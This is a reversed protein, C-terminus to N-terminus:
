FDDDGDSPLPSLPPPTPWDSGENPPPIYGYGDDDEEEAEVNMEAENTVTTSPGGRNQSNHNIRRSKSPRVGTRAMRGKDDDETGGLIWNKTAPTELAVTTFALKEIRRWISQQLNMNTEDGANYAEDRGRINTGSTLVICGNGLLSADELLSWIFMVSAGCDTLVDRVAPDIILETQGSGWNHYLTTKYYQFVALQCVLEERLRAVYSTESEDMNVTGKQTVLMQVGDIEEGLSSLSHVFFPKITITEEGSEDDLIITTRNIATSEACRRIVFPDVLYTLMSVADELEKIEDRLQVSTRSSFLSAPNKYKAVVSQVAEVSETQLQESAGESSLAYELYCSRNRGLPLSFFTNDAVVMTRQLFAYAAVVSAPEAWGHEPWSTHIQVEPYICIGFSGMDEPKFPVEFELHPVKEPEHDEMIRSVVEMHLVLGLNNKTLRHIAHVLALHCVTVVSGDLRSLFGLDYAALTLFPTFPGPVALGCTIYRMVDLWRYPDIHVLISAWQLAQEEVGSLATHLLNCIVLRILFPNTDVFWGSPRVPTNTTGTVSFKLMGDERARWALHTKGDGFSNYSVSHIGLQAQM